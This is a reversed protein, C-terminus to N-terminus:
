ELVERVGRLGEADRVEDEDGLAGLFASEVHADRPQGRPRCEMELDVRQLGHPGHAGPLLSGDLGGGRVRRRREYHRRPKLFLRRLVTRRRVEFERARRQLVRKRRDVDLRHADVVAPADHQAGQRVRLGRRELEPVVRHARVHRADRRRNPPHDLGASRGIQALQAVDRVVHRLVRAVRGVRFRLLFRSHLHGALERAAAVGRM